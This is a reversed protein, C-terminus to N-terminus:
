APRSANRKREEMERKIAAMEEMERRTPQQLHLKKGNHYIAKPLQTIPTPMTRRVTNVGFQFDLL